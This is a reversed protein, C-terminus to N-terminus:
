GSDRRGPRRSVPSRANWEEPIELWCNRQVFLIPVNTLLWTCPWNCVAVGYIVDCYIVCQIIILLLKSEKLVPKFSPEFAEIARAIGLRLAGAQGSRGGGKVTSYVDFMGSTETHFFPELVHFRAMTSPFYESISKSNVTFQGVGPKIWVRAVATKRRGTGYSRNFEDISRNRYQTPNEGSRLDNGHEVYTLPPSEDEIDSDDSSDSYSEGDDSDSSETFEGGKLTFVESTPNLERYLAASRSICRVSGVNVHVGQPVNLGRFSSAVAPRSFKQLLNRSFRQM